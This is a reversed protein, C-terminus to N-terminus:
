PDLKTMQFLPVLLPSLDSQLIWSIECEDYTMEGIFLAKLETLVGKASVLASVVHEADEGDQWHGAIIGAVQGALPESLFQQFREPWGERAGVEYPVSIRYVAATDSIRSGPRWEKVTLGGFETKYESITM